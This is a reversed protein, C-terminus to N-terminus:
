LIPLANKFNSFHTKNQCISLDKLKQWNNEILAKKKRRSWGKIKKEWQEAIAFDNFTECFVLKM